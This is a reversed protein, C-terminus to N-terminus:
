LEDQGPKFIRWILILHRCRYIALIDKENLLLVLYKYRPGRRGGHNYCSSLCEDGGM